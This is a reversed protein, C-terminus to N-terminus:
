IDFIKRNFIENIKAQYIPEIKSGSRWNNLKWRPIMCERLILRVASRHDQVSLEKLFSDLRFSPSLVTIQQM